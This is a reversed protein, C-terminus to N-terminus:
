FSWSVGVTLQLDDKEPAVGDADPAPEGIRNWQLRVDLDFDWWLDVSVNLSTLQNSDEFDGLGVEASYVLDVDVTSTPEWSVTTGVIGTASEDQSDAGAEVSAYRTMRYGVATSVDWEIRGRDVVTYGLGTYPSARLEINQFDDRFLEFGLPTVFLRSNLFWDYRARLRENDTVNVGELKAYASYWDIPLRSRATRRLLTVSGTADLQDTNGRRVTGGIAIKGSWFNSEKPEGPVMRVLDARDLDRLRGGQEVVVRDDLVQVTGVLEERGELLLTFERATRVEAVDKWDIELDDLEASDFQLSERDLVTIEGRLWEGSKLRLWDSGDSTVVIATVDPKPTPESPEIAGDVVPAHDQVAGMPAHCAVLTFGALLVPCARLPAAFM